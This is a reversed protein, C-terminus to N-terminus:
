PTGGDPWPVKALAARRTASVEVLPRGAHDAGMCALWLADAADNNGDFQDEGFTRGTRLMIADKDARSDGTAYVKLHAVNVEVYPVGLKWLEHTVLRRLGALAHVATGKIHYPMEELVALEAGAAHERVRDLIWKERPHGSSHTKPPPFAAATFKRTVTDIRALGPSALSLDGGIIIM